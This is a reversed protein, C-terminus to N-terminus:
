GKNAKVLVGGQPLTLKNEAKFQETRELDLVPDIFEIKVLGKGNRRYEEILSQMDAYVKSDRQSIVTLSIEKSQRRLYNLTSSNLTFESEPSLDWRTYYMYSLKNVGGFIVLGLLVQLLVNLGIGFRGPAGKPKSSSTTSPIPDPM